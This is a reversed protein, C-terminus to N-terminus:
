GRQHVDTYNDCLSELDNHLFVLRYVFSLILPQTENVFRELHSADFSGSLLKLKGRYFCFDQISVPVGCCEM